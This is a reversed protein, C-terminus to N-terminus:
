ENPYMGLERTQLFYWYRWSDLYGPYFVWLLANIKKPIYLQSFILQLSPFNNSKNWKIEQWMRKTQQSVNIVAPDNLQQWACVYSQQWWLIPERDMGDCWNNTIESRACSVLKHGKQEHLRLETKKMREEQAKNIYVMWDYLIRDPRRNRWVKWWHM